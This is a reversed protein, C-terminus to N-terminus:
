LKFVEGTGPALRPPLEALPLYAINGTLAVAGLSQALEGATTERVVEGGPGVYVVPTSPPFSAYAESLPAARELIAGAPAPAAEPEVAAAPTAVVPAPALKRVLWWAGLVAAALTILKSM